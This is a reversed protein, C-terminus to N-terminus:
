QKKKIRMLQIGDESPHTENSPLGEDTVPDDLWGGEPEIPDDLWEEESDPEDLWATDKQSSGASSNVTEQAAANEATVPNVSSKVPHSTEAKPGSETVGDGEEIQLLKDLKAMYYLSKRHLEDYTRAYRVYTFFLLAALGLVYLFLLVHVAATIFPINLHMLLDEMDMMMILGILLLFCLTYHVLTRFVKRSIYDGKYYSSVERIAKGEKKDYMSLKTMLRIKEVNLM